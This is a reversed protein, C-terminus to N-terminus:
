LATRALPAPLPYIEVLASAEAHITVGWALRLFEVSEEQLNVLCGTPVLGLLYSPPLSSRQRVLTKYSYRLCAALRLRVAAEAHHGRSGM